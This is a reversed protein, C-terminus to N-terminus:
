VQQSHNVNIDTAYLPQQKYWLVKSWQFILCDCGIYMFVDNCM